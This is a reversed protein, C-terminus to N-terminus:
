SVLIANTAGLSLNKTIRYADYNNNESEKLFNLYITDDTKGVVVINVEKMGDLKHWGGVLQMAKKSKSIRIALSTYRLRKLGSLPKGYIKM